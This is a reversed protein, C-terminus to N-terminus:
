KETSEKPKSEIIIRAPILDGNEMKYYVEVIKSTKTEYSIGYGRSYYEEDLTKYTLIDGPKYEM